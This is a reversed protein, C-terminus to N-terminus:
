RFKKRGPNVQRYTELLEQAAKEGLETLIVSKSRTSFEILRDAKLSDLASWDHGRWSRWVVKFGPPLDKPKMTTWRTLYLLMITLDRVHRDADKPMSRRAGVM